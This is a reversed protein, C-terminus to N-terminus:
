INSIPFFEKNGIELTCLGGLKPSKNYVCVWRAVVLTIKEGGAADM